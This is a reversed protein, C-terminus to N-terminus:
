DKLAEQLSLGCMTKLSDRLRADGVEPIIENVVIPWLADLYARWRIGDWERTSPPTFRMDGKETVLLSEFFGCRLLMSRHVMQPDPWLGPQADYIRACLARYWHRMKDPPSRKISVTLYHREPVFLMTEKDSPFAPFLVEGRKIMLLEAPM